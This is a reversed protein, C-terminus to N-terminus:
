QKPLLLNLPIMLTLLYMTQHKQLNVYITLYFLEPQHNQEFLCQHYPSHGSCKRSMDSRDREASIGRQAAHGLAVHGSAIM